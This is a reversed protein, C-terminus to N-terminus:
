NYRAAGALTCSISVLPPPAAVFTPIIRLRTCHLCWSITHLRSSEMYSSFLPPTSHALATRSLRLVVLMWLLPSALFLCAWTCVSM